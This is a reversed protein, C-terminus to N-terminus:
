RQRGYFEALNAQSRYLLARTVQKRQLMTSLRPRSFKSVKMPRHLAANKM